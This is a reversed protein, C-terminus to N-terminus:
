ADDEWPCPGQYARSAALVDKQEQASQSSTKQIRTQQYPHKGRKRKLNRKKKKAVEVQEVGRERMLRDQRVRSWNLGSM